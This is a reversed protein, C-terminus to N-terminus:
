MFLITVLSKNMSSDRYRVRAPGLSGTAVIGDGSGSDIPNKMYLNHVVAGTM